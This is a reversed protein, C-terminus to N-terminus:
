EKNKHKVEDKKGTESRIDYKIYTFFSKSIHQVFIFLLDMNPGNNVNFDPKIYARCLKKNSQM